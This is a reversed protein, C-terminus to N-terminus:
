RNGTVGLLVEEGNINWSKMGDIPDFVISDALTVRYNVEM